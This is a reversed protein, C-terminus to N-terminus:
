QATLSDTKIEALEFLVADRNDGKDLLVTEQRYIRNVSLKYKNWFLIGDGESLQIYFPELTFRVHGSFDETDFDKYFGIPAIKRDNMYLELAVFPYFDKNSDDEGIFIVKISIRDEANIASFIDRKGLLSIEFQGTQPSFYNGYGLLHFYIEDIKQKYELPFQQGQINLSNTATDWNETNNYLSEIIPLLKENEDISNKNVKISYLLAIIGIVFGALSVWGFVNSRILTSRIPQIVENRIAEINEDVKEIQETHKKLENLSKKLRETKIIGEQDLQKITTELNSTIEKYDLKMSQAKSPLKAIRLQVIFVYKYSKNLLNFPTRTARKLNCM